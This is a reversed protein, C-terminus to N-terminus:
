GISTTRRDLMGLRREGRPEREPQRARAQRGLRSQRAEAERETAMEQARLYHFYWM